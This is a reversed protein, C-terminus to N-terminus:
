KGTDAKAGVFKTLASMSGKTASKTIKQVVGAYKTFAKQAYGWGSATIKAQTAIDESADKDGAYKAWKKAESHAKGAMEKCHKSLKKGFEGAGEIVALLDMVSTEVEASDAGVIKEVAEPIGKVTNCQNHMLTGVVVTEIDDMTPNMANVVGEIGNFSTTDMCDELKKLKAMNWPKAKVTAKEKAKDIVRARNIKLWGKTMNFFQTFYSGIKVALSQFVAAIKKLTDVVVQKIGVATAETLISMKEQIGADGSAAVLASEVLIGSAESTYRYVDAVSETVTVDIYSCMDESFAGPLEVAELMLEPDNIPANQISTEVLAKMHELSFM